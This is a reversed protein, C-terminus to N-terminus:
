INVIGPSELIVKSIEDSTAAVDIYVGCAFKIRTHLGLEKLEREEKKNLSNLLDIPVISIVSDLCIIVTGLETRSHYFLM